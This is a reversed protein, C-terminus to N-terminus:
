VRVIGCVLRGLVLKGFGHPVLGIGDRVDDSSVDDLVGVGVGGFFIGLGVLPRHGLSDGLEVHLLLRVHDLRLDIVGFSLVI